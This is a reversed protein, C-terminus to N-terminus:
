LEKVSCSKSLDVISKVLNPHAEIGRKRIVYGLFLGLTVGFKCKMPNLKVCYQRLRQFVLELHQFPDAFEVSKVITDDIYAEVIGDILGDFIKLVLRQYTAGANKLGFPM